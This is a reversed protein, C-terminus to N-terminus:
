SPRPATEALRSRFEPDSTYQAIGMGLIFPLFALDLDRARWGLMTTDLTLVIAECGCAEARRVFSAALEPVSSFYLQFWRPADGGARAIEEMPRSAQTSIVFPIGEAAAARAAGVDADRRDA